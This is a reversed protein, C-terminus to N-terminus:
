FYIVAIKVLAGQIIGRNGYLIIAYIVVGAFVLLTIIMSIMPQKLALLGVGTLIVPIVLCYVLTQLTLLNMMELGVLDSVFFLAAIIFINNRAKRSYLAFLERRTKQYDEYYGSLIDTDENGTTM